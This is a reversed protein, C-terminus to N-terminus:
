PTKERPPPLKGGHRRMADTRRVEELRDFLDLMENTIKVFRARAKRVARYDETLGTFLLLDKGVLTFNRQKDGSRDSLVTSVHPEGDACRCNPKGCKRRADHVLGRWLPTAEQAARVLSPIEEALSRLRKRLQSPSAM